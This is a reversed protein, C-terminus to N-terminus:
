FRVKSITYTQRGLNQEKSSVRAYGYVKGEMSEVEETIAAMGSGKAVTSRPSAHGTATFVGTAM